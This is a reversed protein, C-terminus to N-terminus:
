EAALAPQEEAILQGFLPLKERDKRQRVLVLARKRATDTFSHRPGRTFRM